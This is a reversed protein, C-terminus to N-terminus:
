QICVRIRVGAEVPAPEPEPVPEPDAPYVASDIARQVLSQLENGDLPKTVFGDYNAEKARNIDFPEFTGTLLFVPIHSTEQNGKVQQCVEYGDIGPLMAHALVLHPRISGIQEM